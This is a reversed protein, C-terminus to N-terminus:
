RYITFAEVNYIYFSRWGNQGLDWYRILGRIEPATGGKFTYSYRNPDLTGLAFRRGGGTTVKRYELLVVGKKLARTIIERNTAV